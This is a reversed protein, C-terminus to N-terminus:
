TDRATVLRGAVVVVGTVVLAVAALYIGVAAMPLAPAFGLRALGAATVAASVAIGALAGAVLTPGCEALLSRATWRRPVGIAALDSAQRRLTAVRGRAAGVLLATGLLALGVVVTTILPDFVHVDEPRPTRVLGRDLGEAALADPIQSIQQESLGVYVMVAAEPNAQVQAPGGLLMFGESGRSWREDVDVAMSAPLPVDGADTVLRPGHDQGTWLVGGADLVETADRDMTTALLLELDHVSGLASVMGFGGDEGLYQQGDPGSAPFVDIPQADPAVQGIVRAVLDDTTTGSPYYLVQGASPPIRANANDIALQTTAITLLAVGPGVAVAAAALMAAAPGPTRQVRRMALRSTAHRPRIMRVMRGVVDPGLLALVITALLVAGVVAALDFPAAVLLATGGTLVIAAIHRATTSRPEADAPRPPRGAVYAQGLGYLLALGLGPLVGRLIPDVPLPVNSLDHGTIQRLVLGAPLSLAMGLAVGAAAAACLAWLDALHAAGTAARPSVGQSVLLMRRSGRVRGRLALILATVTAGLALAPLNYVIPQTESLSRRVGPTEVFVVGDPDSRGAALGEANDITTHLALTASLQPFRHSVEPWGFSEWTGPAAIIAHGHTSWRNEVIAVVSTDDPLLGSPLTQGIQWGTAASVAIEGPREPWRGDALTWGFSAPECPTSEVLATTRNSETLRPLIANISACAEPDASRAEHLASAITGGPDTVALSGLHLTAEHGGHDLAVQGAVPLVVRALLAHLLVIIAVVVIIPALWALGQRPRALHLSTRLLLRANM